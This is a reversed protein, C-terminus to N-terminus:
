PRRFDGSNQEGAMLARLELTAAGSALNNLAAIELFQATEPREYFNTLGTAQMRAKKQRAFAALVARASAEDRAVIPTLPGIEDLRRAKKRLKKQAEKSFHAAFWAEFSGELASKHGFSPSPRRPLSAM